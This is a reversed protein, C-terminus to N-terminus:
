TGHDSLYSTGPPGKFELISAPGAPNDVDDAGTIWEYLGVGGIAALGGVLLSRRTHRRIKQRADDEPLVIEPHRIAGDRDWRRTTVISWNM